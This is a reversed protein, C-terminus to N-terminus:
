KDNLVEKITKVEINLEDICNLIKKFNELSTDYPHIPSNTEDIGHFILILWRNNEKSYKIWGCVEEPTNINNMWKSSLRKPDYNSLDNEGWDLSRITLYNAKGLERIQYVSENCGGPCAFTEVLFGNSQLIEKSVVIQKYLNGEDIAEHKVGHSGIEWGKTQMEKAETLTMLERGEFFGTQNALLFLTGKYDYKQMEPFALLYQSKLGDDFTLSVLGKTKQPTENVYVFYFLFSVLIVGFLSYLVGHKMKQFDM